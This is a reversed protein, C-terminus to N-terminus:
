ASHPTSPNQTDWPSREGLLVQTKRWGECEQVFISPLARPTAEGTMHSAGEECLSELLVSWVWSDVTGM